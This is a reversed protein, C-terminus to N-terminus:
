LFFSEMWKCPILFTASIFLYLSTLFLLRQLRAIFFVSGIIRSLFHIYVVGIEIKYVIIIFSSRGCMQTSLLGSANWLQQLTVNENTISPKNLSCLLSYKTTISTIVTASRPRSSLILAVTQPRFRNCLWYASWSYWTYSTM